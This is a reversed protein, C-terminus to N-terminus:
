CTTQRRGIGGARLGSVAVGAQPPRQMTQSPGHTRVARPARRDM